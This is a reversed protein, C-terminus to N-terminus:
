VELEIIIKEGKRKTKLGEEGGVEGKEKDKEGWGYHHARGGVFSKTKM